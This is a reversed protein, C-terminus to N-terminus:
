RKALSETLVTSAVSIAKPYDSFKEVKAIEEGMKAFDCALISPSIKIM